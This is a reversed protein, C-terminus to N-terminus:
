DRGLLFRWSKSTVSRPGFISPGHRVEYRVFGYDDLLIPAGPQLKDWFYNAAAIEPTANNMDISLYAVQGINASEVPEGDRPTGRLNHAAENSRLDDDVDVTETGAVEDSTALRDFTSRRILHLELGNLVRNVAKGHTTLM